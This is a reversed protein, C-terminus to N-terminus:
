LPHGKLCRGHRGAEVQALTDHALVRGLAVALALLVRARERGDVRARGALDFNGAVRQVREVVQVVRRGRNLRRARDEQTLQERRAADDPASPLLHLQLVRERAVQAVHPHRERAVDDVVEQLKPKHDDRELLLRRRGEGVEDPALGHGRLALHAGIRLAVLVPALVRGVLRLQASLLSRDRGARVLFQARRRAGPAGRDVEHGHHGVDALALEREDVHPLGVVAPLVADERGVGVRDVLM